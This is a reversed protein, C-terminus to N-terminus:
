KRLVVTNCQSETSLHLYWYKRRKQFSTYELGSKELNEFEGVLLVDNELVSSKM